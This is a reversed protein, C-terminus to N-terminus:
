RLGEVTENPELPYGHYEGTLPRTLVAEYVVDGERHWVREPFRGAWTGVNGLRIGERLWGAVTEQQRALERPCISAPPKRRVPMGAFSPVDKHYPSGTYRVERAVAELDVEAPPAAVRRYTRNPRQRPRKM